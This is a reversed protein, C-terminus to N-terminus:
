HCVFIPYGETYLLVLSHRAHQDLELAFGDDTEVVEWVDALDERAVM